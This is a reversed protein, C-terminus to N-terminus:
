AGKMAAMSTSHWIARRMLSSLQLQEDETAGVLQQIPTLQPGHQERPTNMFSSRTHPCGHFCSAQVGDVTITQHFDIVEIRSM